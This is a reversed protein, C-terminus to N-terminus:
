GHILRDIEAAISEAAKGDGYLEPWSDFKADILKVFAEAIHEPNGGTLIARGQQVIETWETTSRLIICPRQAFYSEKQVGGSDTVIMVSMRELQLMAIYGVPQILHVHAAHELKSLLEPQLELNKKLRPHVPLIWDLGHEATLNLLTEVIAKLVSPDDTNHDRHITSLVFRKGEFRSVDPHLSAQAGYHLANDYMVDGCLFVGPHVASFPGSHGLMGENKLNEIGQQTPSFLLTSVHDTVIRNIEEPMTRLFSRLGAEIHIIPVNCKSAVLAGAMTSNTDGYVIIADPKEQLVVEELEIMMRGTQAGHNGSGAKLIAFPEEIEMEDFFVKSMSEDYHQGTHVILEKIRGDYDRRFVRNLAAAKIFQPRAGVITMVKKM